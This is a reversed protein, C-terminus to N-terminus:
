GACLVDLHAAVCRGLVHLDYGGELMSVIKGGAHKQAVARIQQTVWGYDAEVLNLMALGDDRHADFGASIFIMQPAFADLAPLWEGTVAARFERSGSGAPLPLNIMRESRGDVGSGPYFPHQFTSVMLVRPDHRFIDETGNGHHVDFDVIAVRALGHAALAHAAAIAVNNFFCFGMAAAREAHHGPPRIACFASSVRGAIVLDTALVGSGAARLAAQLTGPSMSTDPDIAVLGEAPAIRELSQLYGEDHVRLLQERTALPAEFRELLYDLRSAIIRDELAGLREPREPHGDGMNHLLCDAHTLWAVTM